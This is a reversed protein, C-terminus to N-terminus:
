VQKQQASEATAELAALARNAEAVADRVEQIEAQEEEPRGIKAVDLSLMYDELRAHKVNPTWEKAYNRKTLDAWYVTARVLKKGDKDTVVQSPPVDVHLSLPKKRQSLDKETPIVIRNGKGLGGLVAAMDAVTNERQDNLRRARELISLTKKNKADTYLMSDPWSYAHLTKCDRLRQHVSLGVENLGAAFEIMATTRWYDKRIKSPKNKKGKFPIQKLARNAKIVPQLSYVTLGDLFHTFIYIRLGHGVSKAPDTKRRSAQFFRTSTKSFPSSTSLRGMQATISSLWTAM